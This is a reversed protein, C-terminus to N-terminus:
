FHIMHALVWWKLALSAISLPEHFKM